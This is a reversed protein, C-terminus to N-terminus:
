PVWPLSLRLVWWSLRTQDKCQKANSSVVQKFTHLNISMESVWNWWSPFPLWWTVGWLHTTVFATSQEMLLVGGQLFVAELRDMEPPAMYSAKTLLVHSSSCDIAEPCLSDSGPTTWWARKGRGRNRWGPDWILAAASWQHVHLVLLVYARIILQQYKPSTHAWSSCLGAQGPLQSGVSKVRGLPPHLILM